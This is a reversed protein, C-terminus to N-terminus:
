NINMIILLQTILLTFLYVFLESHKIDLRLVGKNTWIGSVFRNANANLCMKCTKLKCTLHFINQACKKRNMHRSVM